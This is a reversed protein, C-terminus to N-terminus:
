KYEGRHIIIIQSIFIFINNIMKNDNMFIQHDNQDILIHNKINNKKNSNVTKYKSNSNKISKKWNKYHSKKHNKVIQITLNLTQDKHTKTHITQSITTNSKRKNRLYISILIINISNLIIVILFNILRIWLLEIKIKIKNEKQIKNIKKM